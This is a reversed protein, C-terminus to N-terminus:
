ILLKSYPTYFPQSKVSTFLVDYNFYARKATHVTPDNFKALIFVRVCNDCM